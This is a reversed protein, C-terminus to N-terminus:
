QEFGTYVNLSTSRRIAKRNSINTHCNHCLATWHSQDFFMEENDLYDKTEWNHHLETARDGCIECNPHNNLFQRRETRYRSTRYFESDPKPLNRFFNLKREERRRDLAEQDAQHRDCFDSGEIRFRPCGQHKCIRQISM